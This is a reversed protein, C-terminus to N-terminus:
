LKTKKFKICDLYLDIFIKCRDDYNIKKNNFCYKKLHREENFCLHNYKNKSEIYTILIEDM